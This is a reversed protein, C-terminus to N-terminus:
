KKNTEYTAYFTKSLQIDDSIKPFAKKKVRFYKRKGEFFDRELRFNAGKLLSLVYM